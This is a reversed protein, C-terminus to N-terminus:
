GHKILDCQGYEDVDIMLSPAMSSVGIDGIIIFYAAIQPVAVEKDRPKAVPQTPTAINSSSAIGFTWTKHPWISRILLM